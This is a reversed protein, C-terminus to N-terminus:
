WSSDVEILKSVWQVQLFSGRQGKNAHERTDGDKRALLVKEM